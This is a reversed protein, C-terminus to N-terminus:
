VFSFEAEGNRFYVCHLKRVFELQSLVENAAVFELASFVPGRKRKKTYTFLFKEWIEKPIIITYCSQIERNSQNIRPKNLAM